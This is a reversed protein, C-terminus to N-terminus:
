TGWWYPTYQIIDGCTVKNVPHVQVQMYQQLIYAIFWLMELAFGLTKHSGVRGLVTTCQMYMCM